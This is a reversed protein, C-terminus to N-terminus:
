IFKQKRLNDYIYIIKLQSQWQRIADDLYLCLQGQAKVCCWAMYAYQPLPPIAGSM